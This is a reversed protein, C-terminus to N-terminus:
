IRFKYFIIGFIYLLLAVECDFAQETATCKKEPNFWLGLKKRCERPVPENFTKGFGRGEVGKSNL